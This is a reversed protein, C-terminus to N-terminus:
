RARWRTPPGARRLRAAEGARPAQRPDAVAGRPEASARSQLVRPVDRQAGGGLARVEHVPLLRPVAGDVVVKGDSGAPHKAIYDAPLGALASPALSVKTADENVNSEFKNGLATIEDRLAKVRARTADDRNVGARKFDALDQAIWYKTGDDEGSLDIAAVVDYVGRDLTIESGLASAQM